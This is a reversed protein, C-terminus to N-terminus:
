RYYRLIRTTVAVLLFNFILVIVKDQDQKYVLISRGCSADAAIITFSFIIQNLVLSHLEFILLYGDGVLGFLSDM